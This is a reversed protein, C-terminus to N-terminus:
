KMFNLIFEHEGEDDVVLLQGQENEVCTDKADEWNERTQILVYTSGGYTDSFLGM